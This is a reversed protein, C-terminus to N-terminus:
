APLAELLRNLSQGTAKELGDLEVEGLRENIQEVLEAKTMGRPRKPEAQKPVYALELSLTKAIVSRTSVRFERALEEAKEFTIPAENRLRSEQEKTYSM